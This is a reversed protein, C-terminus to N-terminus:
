AAATCSSTNNSKSTGPFASSNLSVPLYICHVLLKPNSAKLLIISFLHREECGIPLAPNTGSSIENVGAVM